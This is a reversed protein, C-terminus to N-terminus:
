DKRMIGVRRHWKGSVLVWEAKSRIHQVTALHADEHMNHRSKFEAIRAWDDPTRSSDLAIGM